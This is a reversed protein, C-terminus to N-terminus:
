YKRGENIRWIIIASVGAGVVFGILASIGDKNGGAIIACITGVVIPIICGINNDQSM